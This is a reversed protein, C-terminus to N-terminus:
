AATRKVNRADFEREKVLRYQSQINIM